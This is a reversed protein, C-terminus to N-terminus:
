RDDLAVRMIDWKKHPATIKGGEIPPHVEAGDFRKRGRESKRRRRRTKPWGRDDLDRRERLLAGKHLRLV